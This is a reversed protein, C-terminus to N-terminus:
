VAGKHQRLELARTGKLGDLQHLAAPSGATGLYALDSNPAHVGCSVDGGCGALVGLKLRSGRVGSGQQTQHWALIQATVRPEIAGSYLAEAYTRWPESDRNSAEAKIM